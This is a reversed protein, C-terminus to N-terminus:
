IYQPTSGRRWFHFAEDLENLKQQHKKEIIDNSISASDTSVDDHFQVRWHQEPPHELVKGRPHVRVFPFLFHLFFSQKANLIM